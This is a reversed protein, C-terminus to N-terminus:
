DLGILPQLCILERSSALERVFVEHLVRTSVRHGFDDEASVEVLGM